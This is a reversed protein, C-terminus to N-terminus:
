SATLRRDLARVSDRFARGMAPRALPMLWRFAATGDAAFTWRVRTGSGAPTLRWDELLASLAPANTTDVRYAYRAGPEAAMITEAFRTGGALRVLRCRGGDAPAAESVGSFWEAWGPVDDALAAYVAAPPAATEATFVLRLPATAAFDLSVSRLRRSM